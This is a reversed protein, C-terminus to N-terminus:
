LKIVKLIKNKILDQHSIQFFYIGAPQNRLSIKGKFSDNFRPIFESSVRKGQADRIIIDLDENYFPLGTIEVTYIGDESPNPSASIKLRNDINNNSVLSTISADLFLECGNADVV